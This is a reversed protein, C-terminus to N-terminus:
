NLTGEGAVPEANTDEEDLPPSAARRTAATARRAKVAAKLMAMRAAIGENMCTDGAHKPGQRAVVPWEWPEGGIEDDLLDHLDWWKACGPCPPWTPSPPPPCTCRLKGMAVYLEVARPTIQTVVPRDLPTRRTGSM